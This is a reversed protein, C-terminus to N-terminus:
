EKSTYLPPPPGNDKNEQPLYKHLLQVERRLEEIEKWMLPRVGSHDGLSSHCSGTSGLNTDRLIPRRGVGVDNITEIGAFAVQKEVRHPLREADRPREPLPRHTGTNLYGGGGAKSVPLPPLIKSLRPLRSLKESKPSNSSRSCDSISIKVTEHRSVFSPGVIVADPPIQIKRRSSRDRSNVPIVLSDRRNSTSSPPIVLFPLDTDGSDKSNMNPLPPRAAPAPRSISIIDARQFIKGFPSYAQKEAGVDVLRSSPTSDKRMFFESPHIRSFWSAQPGGISWSSDFSEYKVGHEVTDEIGRLRKRRLYFFYFLFAFLLACVAGVVGGVIASIRHMEASVDKFSQGTNYSTVNLEDRAHVSSSHQPEDLNVSIAARIFPPIFNWSRLDM